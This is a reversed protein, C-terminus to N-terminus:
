QMEFNLFDSLFNTLLVLLIWGSTDIVPAFVFRDMFSDCDVEETIDNTLTPDIWHDIKSYESDEQNDPQLRM